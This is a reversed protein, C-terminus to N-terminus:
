KINQPLSLFVQLRRVFVNKIKVVEYVGQTIGNKVTVTAPLVVNCSTEDSGFSM